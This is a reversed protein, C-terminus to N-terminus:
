LWRLRGDEAQDWGRCAIGNLEIGCPGHSAVEQALLMLDADRRDAMFLQVVKAGWANGPIRGGRTVFMHIDEFTLPAPNLRLKM